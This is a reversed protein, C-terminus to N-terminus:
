VPPVGQIPASLRREGNLWRLHGPRETILSGQGDPLFALAWPHELGGVVETLQLEGLESQEAMATSALLTGAALIALIRRMNARWEVSRGQLGIGACAGPGNCHRENGSTVGAGMFSASRRDLRRIWCIEQERRSASSYMSPPQTVTSPWTM